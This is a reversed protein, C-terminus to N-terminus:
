RRATRRIYARIRLAYVVIVVLVIPIPVMLWPTPLAAWASRAVQITGLLVLGLTVNALFVIFALMECAMRFVPERDAPSLALFLDKSPVNFLDPHKRGIRRVLLMIGYTLAALVWPLVALVVLGGSRTTWRNPAGDFRFHAPVRDPLDGWAALVLGPIGVLLLVNLVHAIHDLRVPRRATRASRGGGGEDMATLM